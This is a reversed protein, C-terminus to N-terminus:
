TSEDPVNMVPALLNALTTPEWTSTRNLFDVDVGLSRILEREGDFDLSDEFYRPTMGQLMTRYAENILNEVRDGLLQSVMAMDHVAGVRAFDENSTSATPNRLSEIYTNYHNILM